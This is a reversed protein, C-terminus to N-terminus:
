VFGHRAQYEPDGLTAVLHDIFARVKPLLHRATPFVAHIAEDAVTCGALVPVLRGQRVDEAVAFGPLRALGIGALAAQRLPALADAQLTGTVRVSERRDGVAFPWDQRTGDNVFALCNHRVLEAVGAPEGCRALYDPSGVVVHRLPMLRRAVLSSDVLRGSRIALDLGEEVLKATRDSLSAEVAVRPHRQMFSPLLPAVHMEGFAVPMSVRLTGRPAEATETLAREAEDLAALIARARACFAAGAETLAIRRTTRSVLRVGLRAEMQSLRRSVASASLGLREGALSLSGSDVVEVLVTLDDLRDM